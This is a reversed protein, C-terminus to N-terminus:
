DRGTDGIATAIFAAVDRRLATLEKVDIYMMHGARYYHRTVRKQLGADLGLHDLTYETAFYPTALDFYGSGVFLRMHPNQTLAGGLADSTDAFRNEANWEWSGIGGGLIYYPLDSKFGLDRRVYDNFMATYPPRIAALSPDFAPREAATNREIGIFRSDLRGVTQGRDRLLDKCFRGIEIRLDNQEVVRRDLGTYRALREAVASREDPPLAAGKALAITYAGGAWAEVERLTASLDRQLDPVLRKHYWATAAYSPLYLVYPLDNGTTFRATQFNLISSVLLVGNFAIGRDLLHQALGAARTTGYSEGVMFLPSGWRGYRTLYLRIFEGVSEIDGDVGWFRQGLEPKAARSYGTGVPDVFVLDSQDLWTAENDVLAYPAAPMTGDDNMHVRKPGLAGLHLWVSSSGPGGNFSIMLPRKAPDARGELTYAIFFVRAELDGSTPNRVPLFGTTATYELTRGGARAEHHTVVPAEEAPAARAADPKSDGAPAPAQPAPAQPNAGAPPQPPAQGLALLFFLCWSMM